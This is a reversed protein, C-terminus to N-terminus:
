KRRVGEKEGWLRVRERREREGEREREREGEVREREREGRGEREMEHPGRDTKRVDMEKQANESVCETPTDHQPTAPLASDANRPHKPSPTAIRDVLLRMKKTPTAM